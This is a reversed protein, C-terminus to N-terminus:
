RALEGPLDRFECRIENKANVGVKVVSIEPETFISKGFLSHFENNETPLQSIPVAEATM